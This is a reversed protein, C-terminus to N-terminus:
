ITISMRGNEVTSFSSNFVRIPLRQGPITTGERFLSVKKFCYRFLIQSVKKTLYRILVQSVKLSIDPV